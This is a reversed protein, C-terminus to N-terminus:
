NTPGGGGVVELTQGSINISGQIVLPTGNRDGNGSVQVDLRNDSGPVAFNAAFDTGLGSVDFHTTLSGFVSDQLTFRQISYTTQSAKGNVTDTKSATVAAGTPELSFFSSVNVEATGDRIQVSSDGGGLPTLLVLQSGASFNQGIAGGLAEIIKRTDLNVTEVSTVVSNQNTTTAGQALGTLRIRINEVLNTQDARATLMAAALLTVAVAPKLTKM